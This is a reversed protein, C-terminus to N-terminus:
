GWILPAPACAAGPAPQSTLTLSLYGPHQAGGHGRKGGTGRAPRRRSACQPRQRVPPDSVRDHCYVTGAEDHMAHLPYRGAKGPLPREPDDQWLARNHILPKIGAQHLFEHVKEADAAKDYALTAMRGAPLNARAQEVPAPVRENGGVKPDTSHWALPVEHKVDVLVHHKYGFWV